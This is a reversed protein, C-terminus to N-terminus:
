SFSRSRSSTGASTRLSSTKTVTSVTSSTRLSASPISRGRVAIARGVLFPTIGTCFTQLCESRIGKESARRGASREKEPICQWYPEGRWFLRAPRIPPPQSEPYVTAKQRKSRTPMSYWSWGSEPSHASPLRRASVAQMRYRGGRM